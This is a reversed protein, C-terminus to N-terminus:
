KCAPLYLICAFNNRELCPFTEHCVSTCSWAGGCVLQKMKLYSAGPVGNLLHGSQWRLWCSHNLSSFFRKGREPILSWVESAWGIAQDSCWVSKYVINVFKM